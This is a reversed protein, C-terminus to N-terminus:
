PRDDAPKRYALETNSFKTDMTKPRDFLQDFGFIVDDGLNDLEGMAIGKPSPYATVVRWGDWGDANTGWAESKFIAFLNKETNLQMWLRAGLLQYLNGSTGTTLPADAKSFVLEGFERGYAKLFKERTNLLSRDDATWETM